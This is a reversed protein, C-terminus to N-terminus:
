KRPGEPSERIGFSLHLHCPHPGADMVAVRYFNTLLNSLLDGVIDNAVKESRNTVLFFAALVLPTTVVYTAQISNPVRNWRRWSLRFLGRSLATQEEMRHPGVRAEPPGYRLDTLLVGVISAKALPQLSVRAEELLARVIEVLRSRLLHPFNRM